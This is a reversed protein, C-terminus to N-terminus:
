LKAPSWAIVELAALGQQFGTEGSPRYNPTFTVECGLRDQGPFIPLVSLHNGLPELTKTV